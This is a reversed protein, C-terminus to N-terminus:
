PAAVAHVRLPWVVTDGYGPLHTRLPEDAGYSRELYSYASETAMIRNAPISRAVERAQEVAPGWLDFAMKLSGVVAGIARGTSIVVRVRMRLRRKENFDEIAAIMESGFEIMRGLAEEPNGDKPLTAALYSFASSRIPELSHRQAGEDMMAICANLTEVIEDPALRRSDRIGEIELVTFYLQDFSEPALRDGAILRDAEAVPMLYSLLQRRTADEHNLKGTQDSLKATMKNFSAAVHSFEDDSGLAIAEAPTGSQIKGVGEMLLSIPRVFAKALYTALMLLVLFVVVSAIAINKALANLSAFAEATSLEAVIVWRLGPIDLPSYSTVAPIGLANPMIGTGEKGALATSVAATRVTQGLIATRTLVVQGMDGASFGREELTNFYRAPDQVLLRAESRMLYDEGVLYAEGTEGLGERQWGNSGTMIRNLATVPMQVALIGIQRAGDFIPAGILAVPKGKAAPFHVFDVVKVADKERSHALAHYLDGMTSAYPGTLCNTAFLPSKAETYVVDGSDNDILYLDDYHFERVFQATVIHYKRHVASFGSGDAPDALKWEDGPPNPNGAIYFHQLYRAINTKPTFNDLNPKDEVASSLDPLFKDHYWKSLGVSWDPDVEVNSEKRFADRLGRTFAIITTSDALSSVQNKVFRFQSEIQYKKSARVSTVHQFVSRTLADKCTQYAIYSLTAISGIAVLVLM